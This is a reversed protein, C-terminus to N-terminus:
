RQRATHERDFGPRIAGLGPTLSLLFIFSAEDSEGTDLDTTTITTPVRRSALGLLPFPVTQRIVDAFDESEDTFDFITSVRNAFGPTLATSTGSAVDTLTATVTGATDTFPFHGALTIELRKDIGSHSGVTAGTAPNDDADFLVNLRVNVPSTDPFSGALSTSIELDSTLSESFLSGLRLDIYSRTVEGVQDTWAGHESNAHRRVGAITIANRQGESLENGGGTDPDMLNNTDGHVHGLGTTHGIEHALNYGVDDCTARVFVCPYGRLGVTPPGIPPLLPINEASPPAGPAVGCLSPRFTFENVMTIKYGVDRGFRSTLEDVCADVLPGYEDRDLKGDGNGKDSTDRDILTVTVCVGGQGLIDSARQVVSEVQSNSAAVGGNVGSLINVLVPVVLQGEPCKPPPPPPPSAGWFLPDPSYSNGTVSLPIQFEAIVHDFACNPSRGFGVDGRMGDVTPARGPAHVVGDEIFIITGDSFVHINYHELKEVGADTEVTKFSVLFYDESGLPTTRGCEDYMLMFTDVPSLLSGKAPDLDAQSAYLFSHTEPFSKAPVDSWEGGGGPCVTFAGDTSHCFASPGSTNQAATDWVGLLSAALVCLLLQLPQKHRITTDM